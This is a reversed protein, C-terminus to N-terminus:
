RRGARAAWRQGVVVRGAPKRQVGAPHRLYQCAHVLADLRDPSEGEGPIWTVLENELVPLPGVHEVVGDEYLQAVPEARIKKNVRSNVREIRPPFRLGTVGERKLEDWASRIVFEVMDGGQNDEAVVADADFEMVALCVKRGWEAPTYKGTRDARPWLRPSQQGANWMTGRSVVIIGTDDSTKKAKAAPDVGIVTFEVAAAVTNLDAPLVWRLWGEDWLAGEVADIVDWDGHELAVRMKRDSNARLRNVYGPDAETLRPNDALKAPLFCRMGPSPDADSPRPRWPEGHRWPVGPEPPMTDDPLDIPEPRVFRRKVWRHGRGGPNTTGVSHPRVGPVASRLRGLMFTYQKEEFETLEEWGIVVYEAGSYDYVSKEYQLSALELISGNPFRFAHTNDNWKARGALAAQARPIVSRALSPFVRRFIVGRVNPTQELVEAVYHILWETKGGGAAGGYLLEDVEGAVRTAEAQKPQPRWKGTTRRARWREALM